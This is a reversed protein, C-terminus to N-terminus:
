GLYPIASVSVDAQIKNQALLKEVAIKRKEKESHPGVIVHKIPLQKGSSGTIGEFLNLYPVTTGNRIFHSVPKQLYSQREKEGPL